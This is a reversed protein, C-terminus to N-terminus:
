QGMGHRRCWAAGAESVHVLGQGDRKEAFSRRMGRGKRLYQFVGLVEDIM